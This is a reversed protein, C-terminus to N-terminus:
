GELAALAEEVSGLELAPGYVPRDIVIVTVGLERAADLKASTQKGGSNKTVLHTVVERRMLDREAELGYPPRDLLLSAHRPLTFDPPDILRVVFDCDDRKLFDELGGHGTTLLVKSGSPLARAAAEVDAVRVWNAGEPEVWQPRMLRVLPIGALTTARVANASILGAYPHTADVVREIDHAKIYALLGPVGGFKGVRLNGDPLV